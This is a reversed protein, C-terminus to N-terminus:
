HMGTDGVCHKVVGDANSVKHGFCRAAANYTFTVVDFQKINDCECVISCGPAKSKLHAICIPNDFMANSVSTHM